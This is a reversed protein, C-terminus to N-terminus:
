RNGLYFLFVQYRSVKIGEYRQGSNVYNYLPACDMISYWCVNLANRAHWTNCPYHMGVDHLYECNHVMYPWCSILKMIINM